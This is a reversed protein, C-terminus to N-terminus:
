IMLKSLATRLYEWMSLKIIFKVKAPENANIIITGTNTRECKVELTMLHRGCLVNVDALFSDLFSFEQREGTVKSEFAVPRYTLEKNIVYDKLILNM